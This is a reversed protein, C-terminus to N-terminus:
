VRKAGERERPGKEALRRMFEEATKRLACFPNVGWSRKKAKRTKARKCGVRTGHARRAAKGTTTAM